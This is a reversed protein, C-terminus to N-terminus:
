DKAVSAIASVLTEIDNTTNYLHPSVRVYEGRISVFIRQKDLALKLKETSLSEPLKIGFLHKGRCQSAEVTCGIDNLTNLASHTISHCYDQIGKPTWELLQQIAKTMMPVAIFNAQEGMNYRNALPKYQEQYKTLGAFYESNRRNSWNEEIPIGNDFYPGFYALGSSYPGLLWKYAACILADPQINSISFPLAGVSQTGDIILLADNETTKKRISILDFLTGDAWHVHPMAVVATKETIAELIHENWAKGVSESRHPKDIIRLSAGSTDALRQWAYINSPFQEELVLIEDKATLKINHIITGIGYSVSPIVAIREPENCDILQAYLKKLETVPTFFDDATVEFPRLKQNVAACGITAVEKLLPSMYATNLYVVDEPLDFKHKQNNLM